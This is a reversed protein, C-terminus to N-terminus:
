NELVITEAEIADDYTYDINTSDYMEVDSYMGLMIDPAIERAGNSFARAKLMAKPQKVYNDKTSLQMQIADQWTFSAKVEVIVDENGLKRVRRFRYTTRYDAINNAIYIKGGVLEETTSGYGIIIPKNEKNKAVNGEKDVKVFPYLPVYDEIIEFIVGARILLARILNVPLTANGQISIINNVSQTLSLKLEKGAVAAVIFDSEHKHKCLSSKVYVPALKEYFTLDHVLSELSKSHSLDFSPTGFTNQMLPKYGDKTDVKSIAENPKKTEITTVNSTGNNTENNTEGETQNNSTNEM